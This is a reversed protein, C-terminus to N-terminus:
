NYVKKYWEFTYKLGKQLDTKSTWGLRNIKSVDLLKKLTGDPKLSDFKILGRFGVTDKIKEALSKISIDLGSGINLHTNRIEDNETNVLDKFNLNKMVFLCADALDDVYLFERKPNGSGWVNVVVSNNKQYVGHGYLSKMLDNKDNLNKFNNDRALDKAIM